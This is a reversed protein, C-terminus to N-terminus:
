SSSPNAPALPERSDTEDQWWTFPAAPGTPASKIWGGRSGKGDFALRLIGRPQAPNELRVIFKISATPVKAAINQAVQAMVQPVAESSQPLDRLAAYTGNDGKTLSAGFSREMTWVANKATPPIANQLLPLAREDWTTEGTALVRSSLWIADGPQPVLHYLMNGSKVASTGNLTLVRTPWLWAYLLRLGRAAPRCRVTLTSRSTTPSWTIRSGKVVTDGTSGSLNWAGSNTVSVTFPQGPRLLVTAGSDFTKTGYKQPTPWTVVLQPAQPARSRLLTILLAFFLLLALLGWRKQRQSRERIQELRLHTRDYTAM